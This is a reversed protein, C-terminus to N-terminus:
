KAVPPVVDEGTQQAAQLTTQYIALQEDPDTVEIAKGSVQVVAQDKADYAVLMVAHHKSINVYKQTERKTTFTIELNDGVGIYITSAHPDGAPNVTALVAVPHARLFRVIKEREAQSLADPPTNMLKYYCQRLRVCMLM